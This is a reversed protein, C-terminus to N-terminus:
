QQYGHQGHQWHCEQKTSGMSGMSGIASRSPAAWAAWAALSVGAQQQGHQGHQWHCEQKTSGMSGMSGAQQQGHQWHCEQKSSGMSGIASRSPAVAAAWAALPVRGMSGEQQDQWM